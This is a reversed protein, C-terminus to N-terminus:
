INLRHSEQEQTAQKIDKNPPFGFMRKYERNFQTYSEYGVEFSASLADINKTLMLKRAENLRIRKQFQIPSMATLSHFHQYFSSESMKISNALEKIQFQQDFNNKIWNVAKSIQYKKTNSSVIQKLRYGQTSVLLRYYIEKKVLQALMPIDSPSDLLELLRCVANLLQSSTKSVGIARCEKEKTANSLNHKTFIDSIDSLNLELTLGLYPKSESAELIQSVVPLNVSSILFTHMDYIYNEKEVTVCKTGQAILCLHPSLMYSVPNTPANSRHLALGEIDTDVREKDRTHKFIINALPSTLM